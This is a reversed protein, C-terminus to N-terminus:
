WDKEEENSPHETNELQEVKQQQRLDEILLSKTVAHFTLAAFGFAVMAAVNGLLVTYVALLGFVMSLFFSFDATYQLLKFKFKM